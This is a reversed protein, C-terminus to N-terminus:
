LHYLPRAIVVILDKVVQPHLGDPRMLRQRNASISQGMQNPPDWTNRATRLQGSPDWPQLLWQGRALELWVVLQQGM